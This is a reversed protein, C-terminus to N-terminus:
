CFQQLKYIASNLTEDKKAFCLRIYHQDIYQSSMFSSIPIAAVKVEKTLWYVFSRDDMDSIASYDLIQFYTSQTPTFKFKTSSLGELFLNRKREYFESLEAYWNYNNVVRSFARQAPTNVAFVNFQHVKRIEKTIHEPAICYGIKWGTAHFSKGFSSVTILRDKLEPYSLLSLHKLGDFVIHEYVEDSLILFDYKKQLTILQNIDAEAIVSGVPNHPSNLVLLKTKSNIKAELQAWDVTGSKINMEVRQVRAGCLEAAPEYCDYAPDIIIVEDGNSVLAMIVTFLAQTAGATVTIESNINLEVKYEHFYKQAIALRLEELGNMPAYQNYGGNTADVLETKLWAPIEFDPFGQSLNIAKENKALKSM